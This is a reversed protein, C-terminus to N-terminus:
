EFHRYEVQGSSCKPVELVDGRSEEAKNEYHNVRADDENDM